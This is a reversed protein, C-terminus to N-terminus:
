VVRRRRVLEVVPPCSDLAEDTEGVAVSRPLVARRLRPWDGLRSGIAGLIAPPPGGQVGRGLVRPRQSAPSVEVVVGGRRRVRSSAAVLALDKVFSPSFVSSGADLASSLRPM